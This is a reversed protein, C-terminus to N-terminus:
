MNIKHQIKMTQPKKTKLNYDKNRKTSEKGIYVIENIKKNKIIFKNLQLSIVKCYKIPKAM